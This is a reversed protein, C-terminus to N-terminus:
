VAGNTATKKQALFETYAKAGTRRLIDRIQLETDGFIEATPKSVLLRAVQLLEEAAIQKLREALVLAEAEQEASLSDGNPFAM